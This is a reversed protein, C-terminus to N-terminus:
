KVLGFGFDDDNECTDAIGKSNQNLLQSGTATLGEDSGPIVLVVGASEAAGVDREPVAMVVDVRGDGNLDGATVRSGFYDGAAAAGDIGPQDLHWLENRAATIGSASGYFVLAAGADVVTGVDEYPAGVILDDFGDGDIDGTAVSTGLLDREEAEDLVGPTDQSLLLSGSGKLGAKSGRLVFIVGANLVTGVDEGLSTIALDDFGDGDFDGSRVAAGFDDGAEAVEGISSIALDAYGDGNFDHMTRAASFGWSGLSVVLTTCVVRRGNM